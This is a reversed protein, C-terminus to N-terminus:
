AGPKEIFEITVGDPDRLYVVRNGANPGKDITYPSGIPKVQHRAAAALAADLDDVDFAMHAFGVDCPRSSVRGRDDP